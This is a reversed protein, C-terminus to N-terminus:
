PDHSSSAQDETHAGLRQNHRNGGCESVPEFTLLEAKGKTHVERDTAETGIRGQMRGTPGFGSVDVPAVRKEYPHSHAGQADDPRDDIPNHVDVGITM